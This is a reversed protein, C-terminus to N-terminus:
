RAAPRLLYDWGIRDPPAGPKVPEFVYGLPQLLEETGAVEALSHLGMLIVPRHARITRIAGALARHGHGEVDIKVFDPPRIRGEDVLEDLPRLEVDFYPIGAHLTEDDYLLHATTSAGGKYILLREHGSHDSAAIQFPHVWDLHNRRLHLRLRAFNDPHPEFAAVAGTPGVRRGLGVAFLGFHSGLDWVSKGTWDMLGALLAQVEPEHTGRWYATWPFLTWHAGAAVGRRVRVPLRAIFPLSLVRKIGNSVVTNM